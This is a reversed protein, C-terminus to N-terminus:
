NNQPNTERVHTTTQWEGSSFVPNGSLAYYKLADCRTTFNVDFGGAIGVEDLPFTVLLEFGSDLEILRATSEGNFAKKSYSMKSVWVNDVASFAPRLSSSKFKLVLENESTEESALVWEFPIGGPFTESDTSRHRGVSTGSYPLLLAVFGFIVLLAVCVIASVAWFTPRNFETM